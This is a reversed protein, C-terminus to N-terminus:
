APPTGCWPATFAGTAHDAGFILDYSGEYGGADARTFTVTGGTAATDTGAKGRSTAQMVWPKCTRHVGDSTDLNVNATFTIPLDAAPPYVPAPDPVENYGFMGFRLTIENNGFSGGGGLRTCAGGLNTLLVLHQWQAPTTGVPETLGGFAYTLADTLGTLNKGAVTGTPNTV